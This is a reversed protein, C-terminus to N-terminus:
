TVGSINSCPRLAAVIRQRVTASSCRINTHSGHLTSEPGAHFPILPVRLLVAVVVRLGGWWEQIGGRWRSLNVGPPLQLLVGRVPNRPASRAIRVGHLRSRRGHHLGCRRELVRWLVLLIPPSPMLGLSGARPKSGKTEICCSSVVAVVAAPCAHRLYSLSLSLRKSAVAGAEKRWWLLLLARGPPVM